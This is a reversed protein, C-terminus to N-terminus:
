APQLCLYTMGSKSTKGVIRCRVPLKEKIKMISDILVKSSTSFREGDNVTVIGFSGDYFSSERVEIERIVITQNQLERINPM